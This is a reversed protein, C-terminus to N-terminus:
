CYSIVNYRTGHTGLAEIPAVPLRSFHANCVFGCTASTDVRPGLYRLYWLSFQFAGVIQERPEEPM